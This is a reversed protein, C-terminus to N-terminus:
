AGLYDRQPLAIGDYERDMMTWHFSSAAHIAHVEAVTDAANATAMPVGQPDYKVIGLLLGLPQGIHDSCFRM